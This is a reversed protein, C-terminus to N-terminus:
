VAGTHFVNEATNMVTNRERVRVNFIMAPTPNMYPRRGRRGAGCQGGLAAARCAAIM